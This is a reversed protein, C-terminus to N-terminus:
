RGAAHARKAPELPPEKRASVEKSAPAVKYEDSLQRLAFQFITEYRHMHQEFRSIDIAQRVKRRDYGQGVLKLEVNRATKTHEAMLARVAQGRLVQIQTDRYNWRPPRVASVPCLMEAIEKRIQRREIFAVVRYIALLFLGAAVIVILKVVASERGFLLWALVAIAGAVRLFFGLTLWAAKRSANVRLNM